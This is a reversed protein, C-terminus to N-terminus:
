YKLLDCLKRLNVFSTYSSLIEEQKVIKKENSRERNLLSLHECKRCHLKALTDNRLKRIIGRTVLVCREGEQVQLYTVVSAHALSHEGNCWHLDM